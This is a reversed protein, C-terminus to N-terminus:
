AAHNTLDQMALGAAKRGQRIAASITRDEPYFQTSDSVYLGAIPTRTEPMRDAFGTTCIAQAYPTRNIHYEKVWSVDFAPNILKLMDLCETYLREDSWQFREQDVPLYLPIYILNLGAARLNQNLNTTEIIGNFIFRPDNINTWFNTSFPHDLNLLACVVGIFQIQGMKKFYPHEQEPLIKLLEPLAATSIVADCTLRRGNAQVAVARNGEIEIGEAPTKYQISLGPQAELWGALHDVLTASGNELYGFSEREWIRRRSQAVRWIRHWVWAASVQDYYEGFKIQLLPLWIVQYAGRGILRVLWPVAPIRDLKRWQSRYRSSLIHLGFRFRQTWPVASFSLLDFPTGFAYLRGNHYFATRTQRWHLKEQLGLEEVFRVLHQDFRCIFHYYRDVSQGEIQLSGALGGPGPAPELVTVRQGGRILDYAAALGSVGAGLLITPKQAEAPQSM